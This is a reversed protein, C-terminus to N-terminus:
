QTQNVSHTTYANRGISVHQLCYCFCDFSSHILVSSLNAANYQSSAWLVYRMDQNDSIHDTQWSNQLFYTRTALVYPALVCAVCRPIHTYTCLGIGAFTCSCLNFMDVWFTKLACTSHYALNDSSPNSIHSHSCATGLISPHLDNM